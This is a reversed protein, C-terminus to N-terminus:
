RVRRECVMYTLPRGSRETAAESQCVGPVWVVEGNAVVVPWSGRESAPIGRESFYRKLRRAVAHGTARVRDGPRWTRVECREASDVAAGWVTATRAIHSRFTTRSVRRLRWTGFEVAPGLEMTAPMPREKERTVILAHKTRELLVGHSCPARQGPRAYLAFDTARAVGRRDLAVGLRAVVAPWVLALAQPTLEALSTPSLEVRHAAHADESAQIFQAAVQETRRRLRAARRSLALMEREFEPRVARLAPLLDHRVRNRLFTRAVNTPDEACRLRHARAYREVSRRSVGLLPRVIPSDAYLAALGRASAGRLIRMVVTEVQDDRTHATVITAGRRGAVSRLFTWRMERWEAETTGASAARGAVVPIGLSCAIERVLRVARTAHPGTGHDFTAVSCRAKIGRHRSALHLLTMSDIGGSVALVLPGRVRELARGARPWAVRTSVASTM